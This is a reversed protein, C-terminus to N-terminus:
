WILIDGDLALISGDSDRVALLADEEILLDIIEGDSTKRYEGSVWAKVANLITKMFEKM